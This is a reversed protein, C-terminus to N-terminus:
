RQALWRRLRNVTSEQHAPKLLLGQGTPLSLIQVGKNNAFEDMALKQSRFGHYAYDDLLILGGPALRPWFYEAAAVEPLSCNMDLHLFAVQRAPVQALTEPIAGQVIKVNRWQAFNAIVTDIRDIYFGSELLKQNKYLAGAQLEDTSVYREDLGTFTDLLYFTRLRTDWNLYEMIASSLFGRNVGCEVFDGPLRIAAAAAWLGVHVRWHWQYDQGVARVGRQYARQFAPDHLFEHNHISRLGDQEYIVLPVEPIAPKPPAELKEESTM